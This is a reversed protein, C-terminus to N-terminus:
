KKIEKRKRFFDNKIPRTRCCFLYPSTNETHIYVNNTGLHSICDKYIEGFENQDSYRRCPNVLSNSSSILCLFYLFSLLIRTLIKNIRVM